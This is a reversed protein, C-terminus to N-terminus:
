VKKLKYECRDGLPCSNCIPNSKKCHRKAHKVLLAHFEKYLQIDRPISEMFVRQLELYSENKYLGLRELIRFTYSDIVFYSEEFWYLLISDTTEDGLGKVSLLEERNPSPNISLLIVLNKLRKAKVRYYGSSKILSELDELSINKLCEINLCNAEKLKNLAIEVNSWNTQQTLVAGVAIEFGEGPWWDQEGYYAILKNYVSMLEKKM